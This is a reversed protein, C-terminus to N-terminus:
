CAVALQINSHGPLQQRAWLRFSGMNLVACASFQSKICYATGRDRWQELQETESTFSKTDQSSQYQVCPQGQLSSREQMLGTVGCPAGELKNRGWTITYWYAWM